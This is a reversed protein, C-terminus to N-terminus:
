PYVSDHLPSERVARGLARVLAAPERTAWYPNGPEMLLLAACELLVTSVVAEHRASLAPRPPPPRRDAQTGPVLASALIHRARRLLAARLFLDDREPRGLAAPLCDEFRRLVAAAFPARLIDEDAPRRPMTRVVSRNLGENLADVFWRAIVTEPVSM